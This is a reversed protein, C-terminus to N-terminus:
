GWQWGAFVSAPILLLYVWGVDLIYALMKMDNKPIITLSDLGVNVVIAVIGLLAFRPLTVAWTAIAGSRYLWRYLLVAAAVLVAVMITKFLTPNMRLTGDRTFLPISVGYPIAWTLVSVLAVLLLGNM